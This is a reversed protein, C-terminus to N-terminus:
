NQRFNWPTAIPTAGNAKLHLQGLLRYVDWAVLYEARDAEWGIVHIQRRAWDLIAQLEDLELVPQRQVGIAGDVTALVAHGYQHAAVDRDPRLRRWTALAHHAGVREDGHWRLPDKPTVDRRLPFRYGSAKQERRLRAYEAEIRLQRGREVELCDMAPLLFAEDRWSRQVTAQLYSWTANFGIPQALQICCGLAHLRYRVPLTPDRM